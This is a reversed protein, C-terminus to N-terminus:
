QCHHLGQRKTIVNPNNMRGVIPWGKDNLLETATFGNGGNLTWSILEIFEIGMPEDAPNVYRYSNDTEMQLPQEYVLVQGVDVMNKSTSNDYFAANALGLSKPQETDFQKDYTTSKIALLIADADEIEPLKYLSLPSTFDPNFVGPETEECSLLICPLLAVLLGRRIWNTLKLDFM